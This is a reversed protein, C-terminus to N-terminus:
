NFNISLSAVSRKEGRGRRDPLWGVSVFLIPFDERSLGNTTPEEEGEEEEEEEEEEEKEEDNLVTRDRVRKELSRVSVCPVSRDSRDYILAIEDFAAM